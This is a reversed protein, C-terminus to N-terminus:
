SELVAVKPKECSSQFVVWDLTRLSYKRLQNKSLGIFSVQCIASFNRGNSLRSTKYSTTSALWPSLFTCTSSTKTRDTVWDPM